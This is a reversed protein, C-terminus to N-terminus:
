GKTVVNLGDLLIHPLCFGGYVWESERSIAAIRRLDQYVNGAVSVDKVRGVIEGKEIKFALSLSNSFAGSIVNGQGLGLPSEVWLGEDIGAIMDALPTQGAIWVLNSFGPQPPSFLGRQGNGTPASGTQAATKLDYIFGQLVGNEILSQRRCPTGEDDYAASGPRGPLHPDDLLTLQPDFIQEGVRGALPSVGRHVEKGDLALLLPLGLMPASSPSFLVPQRGSALTAPQQALRLKEAVRRAFALYNDDWIATSFYDFTLLVDDGRVRQVSLQLSLPTKQTEVESGASNRLATRRVQRQLDINVHADPDAQRILDIIERGMEVLREISLAALRPDYVQVEAAPQPPPFQLTLKPGYRASELANTALQDKAELNSSAAFGLRGQRVVRVAIGRTETVEFSRMQNAEFGIQTAESAIEFVEAQEAQQQLHELM